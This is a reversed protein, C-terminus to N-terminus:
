ETASVVQESIVAFSHITNAIWNHLFSRRKPRKDEEVTLGYKVQTDSKSHPVGTSSGVAVESSPSPGVSQERDAEDIFGIEDDASM